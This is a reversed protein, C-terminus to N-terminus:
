RHHTLVAPIKPETEAMVAAPHSPGLLNSARVPSHLSEVPHIRGARMARPM